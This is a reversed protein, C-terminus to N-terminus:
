RSAAPAASAAASAAPAPPTPVARPWPIEISKGTARDVIAASTARETDPVEVKIKARVHKTRDPPADFPRTKAGAWPDGNLLPVDFRVRELLDPGVYLELMFRGMKRETETPRPLERRRPPPVTFVGDAYALEYVWKGRTVLPRPDPAFGVSLHRPRSRSTSASASASAEARVLRPAEARVLGVLAPPALALSLALLRPKM